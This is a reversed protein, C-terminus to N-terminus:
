PTGYVAEWLDQFAYWAKDIQPPPVLPKVAAWVDEASGSMRSLLLRADGRDIADRWAALKMALLQSTSVSRAVLFESKYLIDGTTVKVLFGKAGDNLWDEPLDLREAVRAAAARLASAAPRLFYADVDKTTERAEFLLVLAAGGFVVIEAHESDHKLEESLADFATRIDASSLPM